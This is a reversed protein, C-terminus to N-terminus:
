AHKWAQRDTGGHTAQGGEAAPQGLVEGGHVAVDEGGHLSEEELGVLM